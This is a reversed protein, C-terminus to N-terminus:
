VGAGGDALADGAASAEYYKEVLANVEPYANEEMTVEPVELVSVETAASSNQVVETERKNANLAIFVTLAVAILLVAPMLYKKNDGLIAFISNTNNRWSKSDKRKKRM